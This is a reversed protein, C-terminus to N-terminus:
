KVDVQPDLAPEVTFANLKERTPAPVPAPAAAQAENLYATEQLQVKKNAGVWERKTIAALGKGIKYGLDDHSDAPSLAFHNKLAGM